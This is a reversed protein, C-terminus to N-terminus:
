YFYVSMHVYVCVLDRTILGNPNSAEVSKLRERTNSATMAYASSIGKIIRVDQIITVSPWALRASM